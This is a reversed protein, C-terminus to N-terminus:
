RASQKPEVTPFDRVGIRDPHIGNRRLVVNTKIPDSETPVAGYYQTRVFSWSVVVGNTVRLKISESYGTCTYTPLKYYFYSDPSADRNPSAPKGLLVVVQDKPMGILDFQHLFRNFMEMCKIPQDRKEVWYDHDFLGTDTSVSKEIRDKPFPMLVQYNSPWPIRSRPMSGSNRQLSTATMTWTKLDIISRKGDDGNVFALGPEFFLINGPIPQMLVKGTVDCLGQRRTNLQGSESGPPYGFLLITDPAFKDLMVDRSRDALEGFSFINILFAKDPLVNALEVGDRNFFHRKDGFYYRNKKQVDTALFIGHGCYEIDSYKPPLIVRGHEDGLGYLSGTCQRYTNQDIDTLWYMMGNKFRGSDLAGAEVQDAAPQFFLVGLCIAAIRKKDHRHLAV